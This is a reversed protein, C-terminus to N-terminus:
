RGGQRITPAHTTSADPGNNDLDPGAQGSAYGTVRRALYADVLEHDIERPRRFAELVANKTVENFVVRKVDLRKM